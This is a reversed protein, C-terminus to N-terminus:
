LAISQARLRAEVSRLLHEAELADVMIAGAIAM